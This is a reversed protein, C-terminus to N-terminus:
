YAVVRTLTKNPGTYTIKVGYPCSSSVQTGSADVGFLVNMSKNSVIHNLEGTVPKYYGCTNNSSIATTVATTFTNGKRNTGWAEVNAQGNITTDGTVTVSIVQGSVSFTRSRRVSWVRQTGDDFTITFNDAVHKHTVTSTALGQLVKWAVGGTTNTIYHTGSLTLSKGSSIKTVKVNQFELKLVAGADKWRTGSTFNELTAVISGTKSVNNCTTGDFNITIIGSPKQTSDITYGCISLAGDTKGSLSNIGGVANAADDTSSNLASTVNGSDEASISEDSSSNDKRCSSVLLIAIAFLIPMASIKRKM